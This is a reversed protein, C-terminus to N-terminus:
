RRPISTIEQWLRRRHAAKHPEVPIDTSPRFFLCPFRIKKLLAVGRYLCAASKMVPLAFLLFHKATSYGRSIVSPVSLSVLRLPSMPHACLFQYLCREPATTADFSLPDKPQM